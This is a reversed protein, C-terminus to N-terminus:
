QGWKDRSCLPAPRTSGAKMDQRNSGVHGRESESQRRRGRVVPTTDLGCWSGPTFAKLLCFPSKWNELIDQWTLGLRGPPGAHTRM